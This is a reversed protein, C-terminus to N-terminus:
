LCKVPVMGQEGNHNQCLLWGDAHEKLVILTDGVSIKLEDPLTPEFASQAIVATKFRLLQVLLPVVATELSNESRPTTWM